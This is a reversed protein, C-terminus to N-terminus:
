DNGLLFDSLLYGGARQTTAMPNTAPPMQGPNVSGRGLTANAIRNSQISDRMAAPVALIGGTVRERPATPSEGVFGGMRALRQTSDRLAMMDTPVPSQDGFLAKLREDNPFARLIAAPSTPITGRVRVGQEGADRIRDIALRRIQDALEPKATDIFAMTERIEAPSMAFIRDPVKELAPGDVKGVLRSVALDRLQEAQRTAQAFNNKAIRLADMGAKATPDTAQNALAADIDKNLAVFLRKAVKTRDAEGLNSFLSQDGKGYGITGYKQTFVNLDKVTMMRPIQGMEKIADEALAMDVGQSTRNARIIEGLEHRLNRPRVAVTDGLFQTAIAYDRAAQTRRMDLLQDDAEELLQRMQTGITLRSEPNKAAQSALNEFARDIANVNTKYSQWFREGAARSNKAFDELKLLEQSGTRQGATLAFDDGGALRNVTAELGQGEATFQPNLKPAEKTARGLSTGPMAADVVRTAVGGTGKKAAAAAVSGGPLLGGLLAAQGGEVLRDGAGMTNQGPLAAGIAQKVVNGVGAGVASGGIGGAVTGVGPALATGGAAGAAFGLASGVAEPIGAVFDAADGIDFGRPDAVVWKGNDFVEPRGRSGMRVKDAGFQEKLYNLREDENGKFAMGVRTGFGVGSRADVPAEEPAVGAQRALEMLQSNTLTTLDM